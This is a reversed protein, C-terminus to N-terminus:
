YPLLTALFKPRYRDDPDIRAVFKGRAAALGENVSFVHGRNEVHRILRIRPDRYSSLIDWTNDTSCDDIAIVEFNDPGDVQTFIGELCDRLYRGYNYCTIVITVEPAANM